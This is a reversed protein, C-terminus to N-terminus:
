NLHFPEPKIVRVRYGLNKLSDADQTTISQYVHDIFDEIDEYEEEYNPYLAQILEDDIAIEVTVLKFKM